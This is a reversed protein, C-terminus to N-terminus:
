ELCFLAYPHARLPKRVAVGPAPLKGVSSRASRESEKLGVTLTQIEARDYVLCGRAQRTPKWDLTLAVCPRQTLDGLWGAMEKANAIMASLLLWDAAPAADRLYLLALMADISRRSQGPQSPHLLHCEDFIVLRVVGFAAAESSVLALCREPTMVVIQAATAWLDDGIEAYFDDAILSDRIPVDPFSQTLDTKLQAVLAHTPALVLVSGKLALATATKLESLTSKGAGTPFSVVASHGLTLFGSAIAELHNPWLFPRRRVLPALIRAWESGQVGPPTPAGSLAAAGLLDVTALLLTALHHPGPFTSIPSRPSHPSPEFPWPEQEVALGQVQQLITTALDREALRGSVDGLFASLHGLAKLICGYLAEAAADDAETALPAPERAALAVIDSLRGAALASLGDILLAIRGDGQPRLSIAVRAMEMADSGQNAIIFLVLASIEPSIAEPRLPSPRGAGPTSAQRASQLLQHAQAAVFAASRRDPREPLLAVLGEFTAAMRRFRDLSTRLERPLPGDTRGSRLRFAVIAAFAKTLEEPLRDRNLDPLSPSQRILITTQPDFM